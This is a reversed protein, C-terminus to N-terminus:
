VNDQFSRLTASSDVQVSHDIVLDVPSLPNIRAADGGMARFAERMAALDVVCPVGTFDQLLVRAPVLQIEHSPDAKPDLYAVSEVHERTVTRGDEHRLLNELLVKISFPLTAVDGVKASAVADLRHIEVDRGGLKVTARSGFRDTKTM